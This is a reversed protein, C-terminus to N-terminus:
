GLRADGPSAADGPCAPTRVPRREPLSPLMWVV